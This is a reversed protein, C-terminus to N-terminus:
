LPPDETPTRAERSGVAREIRQELNDKLERVSEDVGNDIYMDHIYLTKGDKSVDISLTGPTLSILNAFMTVALDSRVDLPIAIIGAKMDFGPTLVEIAVRISSVFLEKIFFGFLQVQYWLRDDYGAEGLLPEALRLVAYGIVFGILFNSLTFAGTVFMWILALVLNLLLNKM